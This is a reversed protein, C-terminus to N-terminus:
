VVFDPFGFNYFGVYFTTGPLHYAAKSIVRLLGTVGSLQGAFASARPIYRLGTEM